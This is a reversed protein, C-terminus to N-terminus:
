GGKQAVQHPRRARRGLFAGHCLADYRFHGFEAQAVHVDILSAADDAPNARTM